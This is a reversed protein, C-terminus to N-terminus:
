PLPQTSIVKSDTQFKRYNSYSINVGARLKKFVALRGDIGIEAHSPLWVEENVRAQEFRFWSGKALRALFWGFSITDMTEADVKVWQFESQDIWLRGHIKSFMKARSDSAHYGPRPEAQIVWAPKGSIAEEGVLQFNYAEPIENLFKRSEARNKEYERREKSGPDEAAKRRKEMERRLREEEKNLDSGSLPKGDRAILRSYPRGYLILVDHTRSKTSKARGSGDSETIIEKSQYIYDKSQEFNRSELALSKRIIDDVRLPEACWALATVAAGLVIARIM